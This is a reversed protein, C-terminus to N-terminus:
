CYNFNYIKRGCSTFRTNFYRCSFLSSVMLQAWGNDDFQRGADEREIAPVIRGYRIRQVVQTKSFFTNVVCHAYTDIINTIVTTNIYICIEGGGGGNILGGQCFYIKRLSYSLNSFDSLSVGCTGDGIPTVQGVSWELSRSLFIVRDGSPKAGTASYCNISRSIFTSLAM